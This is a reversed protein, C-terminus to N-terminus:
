KPIIHRGATFVFFLFAPSRDSRACPRHEARCFLSFKRPVGSVFPRHRQSATPYLSNNSYVSYLILEIGSALCQQQQQQAKRVSRVGEAIIIACNGLKETKRCHAQHHYSPSHRPQATELFRWSNKRLFRSRIPTGSPNCEDGVVLHPPRRAAATSCYISPPATCKNKTKRLHFPVSTVSDSLPM